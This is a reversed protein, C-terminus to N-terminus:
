KPNTKLPGRHDGVHVIRKNPLKSYSRGETAGGRQLEEGRYGCGETTGGRQLWEGRFSRGCSGLLCVKAEVVKLFSM